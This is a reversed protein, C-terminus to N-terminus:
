LLGMERARAVAQTRSNAGLKRYLNNVHTKVTSLSVFLRGAIEGNSDGSAILALVELERESLPEPLRVESIPASRGERALATMLKALYSVPVRSAADLHGRQRAELTASLLEAMAPGEDVFTRVYGEPEAQALALTLTGVAQEKKGKAWLALAQLAMIEIVSGRREAGEANECLRELLRLAQEPKDEALLVRTVILHESERVYSVEDDFSLGREETWRAAETVEGRALLLRARHVPVPNFLHIVQPSLGIQEAEGIAEVAGARDGCAQRIRALAILGAALPLLNALERCRAIGETAHVLASDLENRERLIEALGVHAFGEASSGGADAALKLADQYTRLAARLRGRASQLRGLEWSTLLILYPDDAAHRVALAESLQGCMAREAEALDGRIWHARALNWDALARVIHGESLHAVAQRTFEVTRDADGRLRALEARLIAVNAPLNTLWVAAWSTRAHPSVAPEVANGDAVYAREADDLLRELKDLPGTNRLQYAQVLSLRPRSRVAEAPLSALWRQLTARENREMVEAVHQEVLRAVWEPDGAAQAHRVAEDVLENRECCAAAARHLEEVREPRNRELRGRLFDAFLHHYRYWRREDDLPVVFLNERELRELMEQGDNRGTLANCLPASMRELVSTELLFERVDDPQRALVEETLFDLVHRNSGSFAEVFSSVDERGQTSLAALQLAAVWGETIEELTAVDGASLTLGMVGKLFTSTEEKTFRLDAARIEIMQDRARLKPLPLPPDTRSLIVLSVNQPIHEILFYVAEHVPESTILHYDDLVATIERPAGALENILAGVVAEVSPPQPSHLSGLVGEGIGEEVIRLAGILYTFFRAPDNDSEDLSLWAVSRGGIAHTELWEALLTTKGFGAPASVLTVARGKSAALAEGLRPRSVLNPRTRPAHLKTTVLAQPVITAGSM